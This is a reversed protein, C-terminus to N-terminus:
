FIMDYFVNESIIKLDQGKLILERARKLKNSIGGKIMARYDNDGLILINTKKTVSDQNIGGLDAIIQMAQSRTFRGLIGTIVCNQNYLPHSIDFEQIKAQM